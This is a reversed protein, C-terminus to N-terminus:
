QAPDPHRPCRTRTPARGARGPSSGGSSSSDPAYPFATSTAARCTSRSSEPRRPSLRRSRSATVGAGTPPCASGTSWCQAPSRATCRGGTPAPWRLAIFDAGTWLQHPLALGVGLYAYLHLLHWSEYRLRRRAARLSTVVVMTLAALAAAALLMGPYTTVLDWLETLVNRDVAGAYGATILVVHGLLLNFSVFGAWRHWRALGDQGFAREVWPIRAMLAVQALLLDASLLGALRGLSTLAPASGGALEQLGRNHVWLATVIVVSLVLASVAGDVAWSRTAAVRPPRPHAGTGVEAGTRVV